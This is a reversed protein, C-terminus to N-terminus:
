AVNNLRKVIEQMTKADFALNMRVCGPAGFLDGSIFNIKSKVPDFKPGTKFFGFMGATNVVDGVELVEPNVQAIIRKSEDLAMAAQNEFSETLTPYGAMRNLIDYTFMQSVISVGVTMAEMYHMIWKYFEKNPCVCWGIRLGSLGLYKSASYIQVDGYQELPINSPVYVRNHYVADHIFPIGKEKMSESESKLDSIYGDPNNPSICLYSDMECNDWQDFPTELNNIGHMEMLPPILAWYPSRMGLHYKNMQTLAWFCASLGQKAGNTIVVPSQYKDELLQTLPKYGCPNPYEWMNKEKPLEYLSCDFVKFLIDRVVHAEGVSVDIFDPPLIPKALLPKSM